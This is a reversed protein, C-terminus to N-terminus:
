LLLAVFLAFLYFLTTFFYKRAWTQGEKLDQKKWIGVFAMGCLFLGLAVAIYLGSKGSLGWLFPLISVVSVVLSYIFIQIKASHHGQELSIIKVGARKYDEERYLGIAIFHPIQWIFIILFLLIPLASLEPTVSTWGLVPPIAGPIAGVFLSLSSKKKLPTYAYLYLVAAVMGLIASLTNVFFWFLLFSSFILALSFVLVVCPSLRGDPLPRLRTRTMKKDMERELYCNLATAGSVMLGIALLAVLGPLFFIRDPALFLGVLATLMVLTALRPKILEVMDGLVTPRPGGKEMLRLKVYLRFSVLLSVMAFLLHALRPIIALERAVSWIGIFIQLALFSVLLLTDEGIAWKQFHKQHPSTRIRWAGIIALLFVVPAALRHAWFLHQPGPGYIPAAGAHRVLGGLVMQFFLAVLIGMAWDVARSPPTEQQRPKQEFSLSLGLLSCLFVASLALHATSILTPLQYKVTLGGLLGQFIVLACAWWSWKLSASSYFERKTHLYFSTGLSIMGVLSALLRHIIAVWPYQTSQPLIDGYCLPWDPCSLSQEQLHVGSGVLILILTLIINFFTLRKM